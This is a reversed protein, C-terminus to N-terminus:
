LNTLELAARACEMPWRVPNDKDDPDFGAMVCSDHLNTLAEQMAEFSNVARVIFAVDEVALSEAVLFGGYDTLNDAGIPYVLEPQQKDALVCHGMKSGIRWPTPTHKSM